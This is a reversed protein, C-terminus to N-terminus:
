NAAIILSFCSKLFCVGKIIKTQDEIDIFYDCHVRELKVENRVKMNSIISVYLSPLDM